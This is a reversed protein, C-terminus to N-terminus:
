EGRDATFNMSINSGLTDIVTFDIRCGDPVSIISSQYVPLIEDPMDLRYFSTTVDTSGSSCVILVKSLDDDFGMQKYRISLEPPCHSYTRITGQSVAESVRGSWSIGLSEFTSPLCSTRRNSLISESGSEQTVASPPLSPFPQAVATQTEKIHGQQTAIAQSTAEIQNSESNIATTTLALETSNTPFPTNLQEELITKQVELTAQESLLLNQEANLAIQIDQKAIQTAQNALQQQAALDDSRTTYISWILAAIAIIGALTASGLIKVLINSKSNKPM